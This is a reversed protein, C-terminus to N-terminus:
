FHWGKARWYRRANENQRADKLKLFLKYAREVRNSTLLKGNLKSWIRRSPCFGKRLSEEIVLAANELQGINCLGSIVYEYVEMDSSYGCEQMDNWLNLMMGCKGFRSLRMLLLKYASLSLRCGVRKAKKYVMMAAYPPGYRCLPEMFSTVSGTSPVVGRSLMQDFVELADAVKRAKLFGGILKTYTDVSPECNNSLMSNYCKMCEDFEGGSIFNSIMANYASTDPVLGNEKLSEFVKVADDVQGARGLGEIVHSFTLGNPEIGDAVMVELVKEMEGVRGFRSWGNLVVNYTTGDFPIKGRMSNLLSNAAGVHSRRCLCRLLVNLSETDCNLGIQDLNRFMQIAKSVQRARIFSDMIVSITELNPNVGQTRLEHLLGVMYSIFKRRGLAKLVIHYTQINKPIMPRQIAWNFFLVMKEGDLNGRDLVKAILDLNLDVDVSTLAREIATKGRLRQLFVGRLKEEPSLFGDAAKNVQIQKESNAAEHSNTASSSRLLPFLDSLQNLVFSEDTRSQSQNKVHYEDNSTSSQDVLSSFPIPSRLYPFPYRTQTFRSFWGFDEIYFQSHFALFHRSVRPFAM